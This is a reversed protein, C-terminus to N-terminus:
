ANKKPELMIPEEKKPIPINYRSTVATDVKFKKRFSFSSFDWQQLLNEGFKQRHSHLCQVTVSHLCFLVAYRM